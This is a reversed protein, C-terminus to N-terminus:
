PMVEFAGYGASRKGGLGDALATRLWGVAGELDRDRSWRQRTAVAFTFVAGPEVALFLIPTPGHWDAPPVKGSGGADAYYPGQHPTMVELALEFMKPLADFFVLGGQEGAPDEPRGGFATRVVESSVGNDDEAVARTAGKVSSGPIYPFGGIRHLTLNVELPHAIGLGIVLRRTLRADVWRCLWPAIDYSALVTEHRQRYDALLQQSRPQGAIRQCAHLFTVRRGPEEGDFTPKWTDVLRNLALSLNSCGAVGGAAQVAAQTARPLPLTGVDDSPTNTRAGRPAPRQSPHPWRPASV